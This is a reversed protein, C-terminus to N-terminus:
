EKWRGKRIIGGRAYMILIAISAATASPAPARVVAFIDATSRHVIQEAPSYLYVLPIWTRHLHWLYPVVSMCVRMCALACMFIHRQCHNEDRGFSSSNKLLDPRKKQLRWGILAPCLLTPYRGVSRAPGWRAGRARYLIDIMVKIWYHYM